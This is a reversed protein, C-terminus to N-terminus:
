ASPLRFIDTLKRGFNLDGLVRIRGRLALRVPNADGVEARLVDSRLVLRVTLCDRGHLVANTVLESLALEGDELRRALASGELVERLFSRAAPVADPTTPLELVRGASAPPDAPTM